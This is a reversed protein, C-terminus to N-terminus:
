RQVAFDAVEAPQLVGAGASNHQRRQELLLDLGLRLQM